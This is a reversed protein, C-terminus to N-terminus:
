GAQEAAASRDRVYELLVKDGCIVDSSGFCFVAVADAVYQGVGPLERLDEWADGLWAVCFRQLQRARNRQLGCPRLVVELEEARALDMATPWLTLMREAVPEAQARRSRCLLMSVAAVRWVDKGMGVQLPYLDFRPPMASVLSKCLERTLMVREM